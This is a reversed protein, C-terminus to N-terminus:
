VVLVYALGTLAFVMIAVCVEGVINEVKEITRAFEEKSSM